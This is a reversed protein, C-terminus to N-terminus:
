LSFDAFPLSIIGHTYFNFIFCTFFLRQIPPMNEDTYHHVKRYHVQLCQKTTFAAKCGDHRCLFPKAGLHILMHQKLNSQQTFQKNCQNCAYEQQKQHVERVHRNLAQSVNIHGLSSNVQTEVWPYYKVKEQKSVAFKLVM